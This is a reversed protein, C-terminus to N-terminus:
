NSSQHLEFSGTINSLPLVSRDQSMIYFINYRLAVPLEPSDECSLLALVKNQPDSAANIEVLYTLKSLFFGSCCWPAVFAMASSLSPHLDHYDSTFYYVPDESLSQPHRGPIEHNHSREELAVVETVGQHRRLLQCFM